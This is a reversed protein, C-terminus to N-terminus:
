FKREGRVSLTQNEIRIDVDEEKIGPIELKILVKEGDDYIDVAPIFKDVVEANNGAAFGQFLSNVRNQLVASERIPYLRRIFM